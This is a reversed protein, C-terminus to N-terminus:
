SSSAADCWPPPELAPDLTLLGHRAMLVVDRRRGQRDGKRHVIGRGRACVGGGGTAHDCGSVRLHDTYCTEQAEDVFALPLLFLPDRLDPDLDDLRVLPRWVTLRRTLRM